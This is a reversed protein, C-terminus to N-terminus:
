VSNLFAFLFKKLILMKISYKTFINLYNKKIEFPGNLCNLYGKQKLVTM